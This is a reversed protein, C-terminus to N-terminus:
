AYCTAVQTEMLELMGYDLVTVAGTGMDGVYSVDMGAATRIEEPVRDKPIIKEALCLQTDHAKKISFNKPLKPM